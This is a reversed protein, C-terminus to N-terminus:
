TINEIQVFTVNEHTFLKYYYQVQM